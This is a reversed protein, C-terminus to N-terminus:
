SRKRSPKRKWQELLNKHEPYKKDLKSRHKQTGINNQQNFNRRDLEEKAFSKSLIDSDPNNIIHKLDSTRKSIIKFNLTEADTRGKRCNCFLSKEKTYTKKGKGKRIM